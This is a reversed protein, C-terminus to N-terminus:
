KDVLFLCIWLAEFNIIIRIKWCYREIRKAQCDLTWTLRGEQTVGESL